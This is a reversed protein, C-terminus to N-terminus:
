SENLTLTGLKPPLTCTRGLHLCRPAPSAFVTVWIKGLQALTFFSTMLCAYVAADLPTL